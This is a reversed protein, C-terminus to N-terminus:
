SLKKIIDEEYRFLIKEDYALTAKVKYTWDTISNNLEANTIIGQFYTYHEKDIDYKDNWKKRPKIIVIDGIKYKPDKM